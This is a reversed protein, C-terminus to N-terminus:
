RAGNKTTIPARQNKGPSRKPKICHSPRSIANTPMTTANPTGAGADDGCWSSPSRIIAPAASAQAAVVSTM